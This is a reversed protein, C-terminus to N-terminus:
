GEWTDGSFTPTAHFTASTGLDAGGAFSWIVPTAQAPKLGIFAGWVLVATAIVHRTKMPKEGLKFFHSRPTSPDVICAKFELLRRALIAVWANSKSIRTGNQRIKYLYDVKERARVKSAFETCDLLV